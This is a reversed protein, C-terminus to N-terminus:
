RGARELMPSPSWALADAGGLHAGVAALAGRTLRGKLAWRRLAIWPAPEFRAGVIFVGKILAEFRAQRVALLRLREETGRPGTLEHLLPSAPQHPLLLASKCSTASAGGPELTIALAALLASEPDRAVYLFYQRSPAPLPEHEDNASRAQIARATSSDTM